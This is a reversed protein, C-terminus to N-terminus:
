NDNNVKKVKSWFVTIIIQLFFIVVLNSHLKSYMQDLKVFTLYFDDM